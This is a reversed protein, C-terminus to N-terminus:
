ARHYLLHPLFMVCFLQERVKKRAVENPDADDDDKKVLNAVEAKQSVSAIDGGGIGGLHEPPVNSHRSEWGVPLM